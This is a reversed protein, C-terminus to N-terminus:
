DIIAPESASESASKKALFGAKTLILHCEDGLRGRLTTPFSNQAQRGSLQQHEAQRAGSTRPGHSPFFEQYM